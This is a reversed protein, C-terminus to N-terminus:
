TVIEEVIAKMMLGVAILEAGAPAMLRLLKRGEEDVFGVDRMEVLLRPPPPTGTEQRWCRELEKVWEGALRGEL